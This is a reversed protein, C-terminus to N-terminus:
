KYKAPKIDPFSLCRIHYKDDLARFYNTDDFDNSNIEDTIKEIIFEEDAIKTHYTLIYRNWETTKDVHTIKGIIELSCYACVYMVSHPPRRDQTLSECHSYLAIVCQNECRCTNNEM